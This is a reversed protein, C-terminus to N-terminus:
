NKQHALQCKITEELDYVNVVGGDDEENLAEVGFINYGFGVGDNKSFNLTWEKKNETHIFGYGGNPNSSENTLNFLDRIRM